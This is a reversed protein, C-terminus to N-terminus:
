AGAAPAPALWPVIGAAQARALAAHPTRLRFFFEGRATDRRSAARAAAEGRSCAEKRAMSSLLASTPISTPFAQEAAHSLGSREGNPLNVMAWSKLAPGCPSSVTTGGRKWSHWLHVRLKTFAKGRDKKAADRQVRRSLHGCVPCGVVTASEPAAPPPPCLQVPMLDLAANMREAPDSLGQACAPTRRRHEALGRQGAFLLGCSTCQSQEPPDHSGLGSPAQRILSELHRCQPASLAQLWTLWPAVDEKPDVDPLPGVGRVVAAGHCALRVASFAGAVALHFHSAHPGALADSAGPTLDGELLKTLGPPAAPLARAMRLRAICVRAEISCLRLRGLLHETSEARIGIETARHGRFMARLQKAQLGELLRMENASIPPLAALGYTLVSLVYTVYLRRRLSASLVAQSLLRKGLRAFAVRAKQKRRKLESACLGRPGGVSVSAGLLPASAVRRIEHSARATTFPLKEGIAPFTDCWGRCGEGAPLLMFTTKLAHASLHFEELVEFLIQFLQALEVPTMRPLLITLDDAFQVLEMPCFTGDSARVRPLRDAGFAAVLRAHLRAMVLAYVALFVLPGEVSGQRVGYPIVVRIPAEDGTAPLWYAADQHIDDLVLRWGLELEIRELAEPFDEHDLSDFAKRIDAFVLIACQGRSYLRCIFTYVTMLCHITSTKPLFGFQFPFHALRGALIRSRMASTLLRSLPLWIRALLCIVRYCDLELADGKGKYLLVASADRAAQPVWGHSITLIYMILVTPAIVDAAIRLVGAPTTGAKVGKGWPTRSLARAIYGTTEPGLSDILEARAQREAEPISAARALERAAETEPDLPESRRGHRPPEALHAAIDAAPVLAISRQPRRQFLPRAAQFVAAADNAADAKAIADIALAFLRRKHRRVAAAKANKAERLRERRVHCEACDIGRHAAWCSAAHSIAAARAEWYGQILQRTPEDFDNKWDIALPHRLRDREGAFHQSAVDQLERDLWDHMECATDFQPIQALRTRLETRFAAQIDPDRLRTQLLPARRKRADTKPPYQLAIRVDMTIEVPLHDVPDSMVPFWHRAGVSVHHIAGLRATPVAWFDVRSWTPPSNSTVGPSRCTAGRMHGGSAGVDHYSEDCRFTNAMSLSQARAFDALNLGNLDDHGTATGGGPQHLPGFGPSRPGGKGNADMGVLQLCRGPWKAFAANLQEWGEARYEENKERTSRNLYSYFATVVLDAQPARIRIQLIREDVPRIAFIFKAISRHVLIISGGAYGKPRLDAGHVLRTYYDDQIRRAGTWCTGQLIM